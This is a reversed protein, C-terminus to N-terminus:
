RADFRRKGVIVEEVLGLNWGARIAPQSRSDFLYDHYKEKL